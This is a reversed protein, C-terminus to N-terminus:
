VIKLGYIKQGRESYAKDIASASFLPVIKNKVRGRRAISSSNKFTNIGTLPGKM